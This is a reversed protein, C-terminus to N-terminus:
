GCLYDANEMACVVVERQVKQVEVIGMGGQLIGRVDELRSLAFTTDTVLEWIWLEGDDGFTGQTCLDRFTLSTVHFLLTHTDSSM